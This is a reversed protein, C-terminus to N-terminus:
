IQYNMRYGFDSFGQETFFNRARENFNWVDLEIKAINQSRAFARMNEMLLTGIGKKRYANNVVIQMLYIYKREYTFLSKPVKRMEFLIHGCIENESIAVKAHINNKSLQKTLHELIASFEVPAYINPFAEIHLNQTEIMDLAIANIDLEKAKRIQIDM